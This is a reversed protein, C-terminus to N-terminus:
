SRNQLLLLSPFISAQSEGAFFAYACVVYASKTYPAKRM